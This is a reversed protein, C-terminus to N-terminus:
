WFKYWPKAHKERIIGQHIHEEEAIYHMLRRYNDQSPDFAVDLQPDYVFYGATERIAKIFKGLYIFFQDSKKLPWSEITITVLHHLVSLQVPTEGEPSYMDIHDYLYAAEEPSLEQVLALVAHNFPVVVMGPHIESIASVIKHQMAVNKECNGLIELQNKVLFLAEEKLPRGIKSQYCFISHSM